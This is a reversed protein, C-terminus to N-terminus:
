GGKPGAQKLLQALRESDELTSDLVFSLEPACRLKLRRTLQAKLFGAASCLGRLSRDRTTADGLCSFFIKVHRLDDSVAVTTLTVMGIRPDKIERLLMDAIVARIAEGVREARRGSM